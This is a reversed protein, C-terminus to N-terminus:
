FGLTHCKFLGLWCRPIYILGRHKNLVKFFFLVTKNENATLTLSQMNGLLGTMQSKQNECYTDSFLAAILDLIM